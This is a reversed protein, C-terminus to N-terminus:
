RRGFFGFVTQEDRHRGGVGAAWWAGAAAVLLTAALVFAAVVGAKRATEAAAAAEAELKRYASVIEDVRQRAQEQTLGTRSAIVSAIYARDDATIGGRDTASRLIFAIEDRADGNGAQAAPPPPADAGSAARFITSMLYEMEPADATSAASAAADAVGSVANSGAKIATGIGSGAIVAALLVGVAWVTLGHAGDRVDVEHETADNARRRLRGAIYGGAMFSSVTVWIGWLAIAILLGTSGIGDQGFPSVVSLGLGAGFTNLVLSVATALLAGAFIAPWDVYSTDSAVGHATVVAVDDSRSTNAM